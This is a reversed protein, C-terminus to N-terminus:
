KRISGGYEGKRLITSCAIVASLDAIFFSIERGCIWSSMSFLRGTRPSYQLFDKNYSRFSVHPRYSNAFTCSPKPVHVRIQWSAYVMGILSTQNVKDRITQSSFTCFYM